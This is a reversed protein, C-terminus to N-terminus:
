WTSLFSRKWTNPAICIYIYSSDWLIDGASGVASSSTPTGSGQINMKGEFVNNKSSGKQYIGYHNNIVGSGIETDELLIDYANNITGSGDFPAVYLGAAFETEPNQGYLGNNGYGVYIGMIGSLFGADNPVSNRLAFFRSAIAMGSNLVGTEVVHAAASTLSVANKSSTTSSSTSTIRSNFWGATIESQNESYSFFESASQPNVNLGIPKDFRFGSDSVILYDLDAIDETQLPRFTPYDPSCPPTCGSAPGAFVLGANQKKLVWTNKANGSLEVIEDLGSLSDINNPEYHSLQVGGSYAVDGNNGSPFIIGSSGVYFGSARIISETGDGGVDIGYYPQSKRIGLRKYESDWLIDNDYNIINSSSWFAIGSQKPSEYGQIGSATFVSNTAPYTVFIEKVGEGFSVILNNNSSRFPFREISNQVGTNYIGSGIEYFTGDTAAYFVTDGNDYVSGFSSFGNAAGSLTFNSTGLTHSIEKIRDYLYIKHSELM